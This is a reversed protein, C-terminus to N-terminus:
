LRRATVILSWIPILYLYWAALLSIQPATIPTLVVVGAISWPILPSIVVASNEIHLALIDARPEVKKCLQYTLMITLTQNCSIMGTIIAAVFVSAFPSFKKGLRIMLDQLRNLFGTAQFIGAYCSSLCVIAIVNLMSLIGGGSLLKALESNNPAYGTVAFSLLDIPPTDQIFVAVAVCALISAGMMLQVKLRLLSLVVILIAPILVLPRITFTQAFIEKANVTVAGEGAFFIGAALYLVSALILPILATRIMGLLNKFIDTRTLTAVLLASTSM